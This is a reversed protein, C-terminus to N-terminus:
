YREDEVHEGLLNFRHLVRRGGNKRRCKDCAFELLNGPVITPKVDAMIKGFMRQSDVPCRMEVTTTM